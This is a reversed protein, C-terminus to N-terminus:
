LLKLRAVQACEDSVNFYRQVAERGRDCTGLHFAQALLARLEAAELASTEAVHARNLALIAAEDASSDLNPPM